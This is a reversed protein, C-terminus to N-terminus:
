ALLTKPRPNKEEQEIMRSISLYIDDDMHLYSSVSGNLSWDVIAHTPLFQSGPGWPCVKGGCRPAGRPFPGLGQTELLSWLM